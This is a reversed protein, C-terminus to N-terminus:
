ANGCVQQDVEDPSLRIPLTGSFRKQVIEDVVSLLVQWVRPETDAGLQARTQVRSWDFAMLVFQRAPKSRNKAVLMVEIYKGDPLSCRCRVDDPKGRKVDTTQYGRARLQEVLASLITYAGQDPRREGMKFRQEFILSTDDVAFSCGSMLLPAHGM